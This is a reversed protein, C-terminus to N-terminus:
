QMMKLISPNNIHFFQLQNVYIYIHWYLVLICAKNQNVYIYVHWYLM